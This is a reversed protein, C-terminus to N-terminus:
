PPVYMPASSKLPMNNIAKLASFHGVTLQFTAKKDPEDICPFMKRALRKLRM